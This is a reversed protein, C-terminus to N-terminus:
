IDSPDLDLLKASLHLLASFWVLSKRNFLLFIWWHFLLTTLPSTLQVFLLNQRAWRRLLCVCSPRLSSTTYSSFRCPKVAPNTLASEVYFQFYHHLISRLFTNAADVCLSNGCLLSVLHVPLPLCSNLSQHPPRSLPLTAFCLMAFCLLINTLNSHHACWFSAHHIYFWYVRKLWVSHQSCCFHLVNAAVHSTNPHHQIVTCILASVCV